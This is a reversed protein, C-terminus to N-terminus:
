RELPNKVFSGCWWEEETTEEYLTFGKQFADAISNNKEEILIGSWILRGSFKLLRFVDGLLPQSEIQLMNMIACDFSARLRLMALAGIAFGAPQSFPNNSRNEALNGACVPDNDIGITLGARCHQAVFCLVGTGTGIDLLSFGSPLKGRLSTLGRAALRTTAHHGTGFATKPEITIWHDGAALPPALWGPSVWMGPAVLAPRMSAKWQANWDQDAIEAIATQVAPFRLLMDQEAAQAAALTTYYFIMNVGDSVSEETCGSMGFAYGNAVVLDKIEPSVLTALSYTPM